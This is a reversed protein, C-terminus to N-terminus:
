ATELLYLAELNDKAAPYHERAPGRAFGLLLNTNVHTVFQGTAPSINHDPGDGRHGAMMSEVWRMTGSAFVGAGSSTTYYATDSHDNEGECVVPSHALVEIPRPTPYGLNVRDFEVGVLHEFSQGKQVGTGAYLWHDPQYIVYPADVPYGEYIVGTMSSEPDPAPEARYDTTALAPDTRYLPDQAVDSKYCIVGRDADTLRVRRFCTNAGMFAVNTGADRAQTVAARRQPTWYEDHGLTYIATAGNLISPDQEIAVGTTYALPIGTREALVVFAREYVMFRVAGDGDYPRNFSVILSRTDYSGDEGNYLDYGGWTNYAQWTEPAHVIVTKGAGDTSRLVLPVYRQHGNDADLRLLYAGEPWGGTAVTLMPEWDTSITRTASAFLPDGQQKGRIDGSRWVLRAQDGRYWGVRFAFVQFSSGTTSVHLNFSEGPTISSKDTYGVIADDPGVSDVWFWPDGALDREPATPSTRSAPGSTPGGQAAPDGTCGAASGIAAAAAAGLFTRRHLGEGKM